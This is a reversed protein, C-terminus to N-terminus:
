RRTLLVTLSLAGDCRSWADCLSSRVVSTVLLVGAEYSEAFPLFLVGGRDNLPALIRLQTVKTATSPTHPMATATSSGVAGVIGVVSGITSVPADIAASPSAPVATVGERTTTCATRDVRM